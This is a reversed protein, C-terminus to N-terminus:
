DGLELYWDEYKKDEVIKNGIQTEMFGYVKEERYSIKILGKKELIEIIPKAKEEEINISLKEFDTLGNRSIWYLVEYEKKTLNM